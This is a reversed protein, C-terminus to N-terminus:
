GTPQTVQSDSATKVWTDLKTMVADYTQHSIDPLTGGFAKLAEQYGNEVGQKIADIKTPDGGALGTAFNVIRDSTQDVGFYGDEAILKQADKQTIKSLDIEKSGNAIKFNIGQKKLMNLVLGQLVDFGDTKSGAKSLSSSYTFSTKLDSGLTVTDSLTDRSSAPTNQGPGQTTNLDFQSYQLVSYSNSYEQYSISNIMFIAETRKKNM